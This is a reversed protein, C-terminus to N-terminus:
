CPLLVNLFVTWKILKISSRWAIGDLLINLKTQHNTKLIQLMGFKRFLALVILHLFGAASKMVKLASRKREEGGIELSPLKPLQKRNM